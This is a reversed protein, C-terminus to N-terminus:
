FAQGRIVEVSCGAHSAVAESTSGLLLRDIGHRGHSGAVIMDAGWEAAENLIITKPPDLLVSISESTALGAANLVERASDIAKQAHKMAQERATELVTTDINPPEFLAYGTPVILEVASLVRVEVGAAWPRSAVSQVARESSDSGDTALLIKRPADPSKRPRVIEISCPADRLVGAAVSGLVYRRTKSDGHSGTIIFDAHTRSARDRLQFRPDGYLVIAIAKLNKSCLRAAASEAVQKAAHAATQVVESTTWLHSPEVVSVVEFSTNAPWPRSAVEELAVQSAASPDMAVLINM